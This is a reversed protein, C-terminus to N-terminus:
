TCPELIQVYMTGAYPVEYEPSTYTIFYRYAVSEILQFLAEPTAVHVPQLLGKSPLYMKRNAFDCDEFTKVLYKSLYGAIDKASRRANRYGYHIRKIEQASPHCKRGQGANLDVWIDALHRPSEYMPMNFIIIHWHVNQKETLEMVALYGIGEGYRKRLIRFYREM